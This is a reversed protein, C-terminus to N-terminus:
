DNYENFDDNNERYEDNEYGEFFNRLLYEVLDQIDKNKCYNLEILINYINKEECCNKLNIKVKLDNDGFQLITGLLSLM